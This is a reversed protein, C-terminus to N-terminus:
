KPPVSHPLVISFKDAHAPVRQEAARRGIVLGAFFFVFVFLALMLLLAFWTRRERARHRKSEREFLASIRAEIRDGILTATQSIQSASSRERECQALEKLQAHILTIQHEHQAVAQRLLVLLGILETHLEHTEDPAGGAQPACHRDITRILEEFLRLMSNSNLSELATAFVTGTSIVNRACQSRDTDPDEPPAGAAQQRLDQPLTSM